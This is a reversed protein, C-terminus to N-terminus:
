WFSITWVMVDAKPKGNRDKPPEFWWRYMALRVPEDINNSGSSQLVEVDTAKGDADTHVELQMSQQYMNSLDIRGSLSFNPRVTKVKRGFRAELQGAQFVANGVHSFADSESESKEGPDGALTPEAKGAQGAVQGGGNGTAQVAKRSLQQEQPKEKAIMKSMKPQPKAADEASKGHASEATIRKIEQGETIKEEEAPIGVMEPNAAQRPMLAALMKQATGLNGGSAANGPPSVSAQKPQVLQGEHHEGPQRSLIAQEEPAERAKLPKDGTMSNIAKGRGDHEGFEEEWDKPPAPVPKPLNVVEIPTAKKKQEHPYKLKETASWPGFYEGASGRVIVSHILWEHVCLSLCIAITWSWDPRRM